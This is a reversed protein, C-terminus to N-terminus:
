LYKSLVNQLNLRTKIPPANIITRAHMASSIALLEGVSLSIEGTLDRDLLKSISRYTKENIRVVEDTVSNNIALKTETLKSYNRKKIKKITSIAVGTNKSIDAYREGLIIRSIVEAELHAPTARM